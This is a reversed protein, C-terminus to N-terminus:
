GVACLVNDSDAKRWGRAASPRAGLPEVYDRNMIAARSGQERTGKSHSVLGVTFHPAAAVAGSKLFCM